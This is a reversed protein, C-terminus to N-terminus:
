FRGTIRHRMLTWARGPTAEPEFPPGGRRLDRRALAGFATLPRVHRRATMTRPNDGASLDPFGRRALDATVYAEAAAEVTQDFEAGLLRAALGFLAPGRSRLGREFLEREDTHLLLAWSQELAALDVGSIELPLLESAVAQLRPEPPPPSTDLKELADRWWVLKIAALAPQSATVVVTAMADDIDLLADLAPRM